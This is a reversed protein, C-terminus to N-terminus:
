SNLAREVSWGRKIRTILRDYPINLKRAWQAVTLVQGDHALFRNNRTNNMQTTADTWRCNDKCYNGDNNIRDLSFVGNYKKYAEFYSEAMDNYFDSFNTWECKIGRDLYDKSRKGSYKCRGEISKFTKYIKSGSLGHTTVSKIFACGCSTTHGNRLKFGAVVHENGCSCRCVWHSVRHKIGYYNTVTTKGFTKGVM